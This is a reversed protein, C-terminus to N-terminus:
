ELDKLIAASFLRVSLPGNFRNQHQSGIETNIYIANLITRLYYVTTTHCLSRFLSFPRQELSRTDSVLAMWNCVCVRARLRSLCVVLSYSVFRSFAIGTSVCHRILAPVTATIHVVVVRWVRIRVSLFGIGFAIRGSGFYRM